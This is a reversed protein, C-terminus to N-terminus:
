HRNHTYMTYTCPTYYYSTLSYTTHYCTNSHKHLMLLAICFSLCLTHNYCVSCQVLVCLTHVHLYKNNQISVQTETDIIQISEETDAWLPRGKENWDLLFAEGGAQKLVNARVTASSLGIDDSLMEVGSDILTDSASTTTSSTTMAATDKPNSIYQLHWEGEVSATSTTQAVEAPQVQGNTSTSLVPKDVALPLTDMASAVAKVTSASVVSSDKAVSSSSDVAVAPVASSVQELQQILGLIATRDATSAAQGRKTNSIRSLLEMQLSNELQMSTRESSVKQFHQIAKRWYLVQKDFKANM